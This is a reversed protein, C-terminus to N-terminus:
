EECQVKATPNTKNYATIQDMLTDECAGQAGEQYDTASTCEDVDKFTGDAILDDCMISVCEEDAKEQLEACIKKEDVNSKNPITKAIGSVSILALALVFLMKM